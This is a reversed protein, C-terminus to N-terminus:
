FINSLFYKIKPARLLLKFAWYSKHHLVRSWVRCLERPSKIFEGELARVWKYWILLCNFENFIKKLFNIWSKMFIQLLLVQMMQHINGLKLNKQLKIEKIFIKVTIENSRKAKVIRKRVNNHNARISIKMSSGLWNQWASLLITEWMISICQKSSIM